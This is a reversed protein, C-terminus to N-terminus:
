WRRRRQASVSASPIRKLPSAERLGGGVFPSVGGPGYVKRISALRAEAGERSVTRDDPRGVGGRVSAVFGKRPASAARTEARSRCVNRQSRGEWLEATDKKVRRSSAGPTGLAQSRDKRVDSTSPSPPDRLRLDPGEGVSPSAMADLPATEPRQNRRSASSQYDSSLADVGTGNSTAETRLRGRSDVPSNAVGRRDLRASACKRKRRKEHRHGALSGDAGKLSSSDFNSRTTVFIWVASRTPSTSGDTTRPRLHRDRFSGQRDSFPGTIVGFSTPRSARGGPGSSLSSYISHAGTLSQSLVPSPLSSCSPQSRLPSLSLSKGKRGGVGSRKRRRKGGGRRSDMRGMRTGQKDRSGASM